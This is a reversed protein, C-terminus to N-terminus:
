PKRNGSRPPAPLKTGHRGRDGLSDADGHLAAVQRLLGPWPAPRESICDADLVQPGHGGLQAAPVPDDGVAIALALFHFAVPHDPVLRYDPGALLELVGAPRHQLRRM